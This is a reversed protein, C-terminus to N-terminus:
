YLESIKVVIDGDIEQICGEAPFLPMNKVKEQQILSDYVDDGAFTLNIGINRLVGGYSQRVCAAATWFQGFKAYDNAMNWHKTAQFMPNGNPPGIFLYTKGTDYMQEERLEAVVEHVLTETAKTGDYLADQDVVVMYVSGYLLVAFVAMCFMRVAKHLGAWVTQDTERISNVLCLITPFLIAMGATMQIMIGAKTALFLSANSAMPLICAAVAFLVARFLSKGAIETVKLVLVFFTAAFVVYYLGYEQFINHKIGNTFFYNQFAQCARVVSQPFSLVMDQLSLSDAGNYSAPSIRFVMMHFSWVIKYFFCGAALAALSRCVFHLLEKGDKEDITKKMFAVVLVVCTCAINAQYAGLSLMVAMSAALVQKVRKVRGRKSKGALIWAALVSLCFSAGFTPSMYRYSLYNCVTSSSLILFGAVYGTKKGIQGFVDLIFVTGVTIFFLTLCSTVPESSIGLCLYGIYLWFWRGISLEWLGPLEHNGVWLTDYNNSLQNAILVIYLLVSFAFQMLIMKKIQRYKEIHNGPWNVIKVLEEM